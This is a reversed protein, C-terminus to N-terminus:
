RELGERELRQRVDPQIDKPEAVDQADVVGACRQKVAKAEAM